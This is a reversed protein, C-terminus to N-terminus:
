GIGKSSYEGNATIYPTLRYHNRSSPLGGATIFAAETTYYKTLYVNSTNSGGFCNELINVVFYWM